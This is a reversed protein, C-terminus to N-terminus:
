YTEEYSWRILYCWHRRICRRIVDRRKVRLYQKISSKMTYKSRLFWVGATPSWGALYESIPLLALLVDCCKGLYSCCTWSKADRFHRGWPVFGVNSGRCIRKSVRSLGYMSVCSSRRPLCQEVPSSLCWVLCMKFTYYLVWSREQQKSNSSRLLKLNKWM